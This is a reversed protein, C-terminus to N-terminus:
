VVDIRVVHSVNRKSNADGFVILRAQEGEAVLYVEREGHLEAASLDAHYADDSIISVTTYETIGIDALLKELPIGLADVATIDGKANSITGQVSRLDLDSLCVEATKEGSIVQVVGTPAASRTTLYVFAVAVTMLFIGVLLIRVRKKKM